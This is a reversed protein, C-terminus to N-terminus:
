CNALQKIRERCLTEVELGDKCQLAQRVLEEAEYMRINRIYKHVQALSVPSMSLEQIGMGLLLPTYLPDGAM